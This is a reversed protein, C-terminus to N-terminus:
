WGIPIRNPQHVQSLHVGKLCCLDLSKARGKNDKHLSGWFNSLNYGTWSKPTM